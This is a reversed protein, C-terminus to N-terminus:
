FSTKDACFPVPLIHCEWMEVRGPVDKQARLSRDGESFTLFSVAVQSSPESGNAHGCLSLAGSYVTQSRDSRTLGQELELMVLLGKQNPFTRGYCLQLIAVGEPVCHFPPPRGELTSQPLHSREGGNVQRVRCGPDPNQLCM